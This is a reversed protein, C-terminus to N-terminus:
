GEAKFNPFILHVKLRHCYARRCNQHVDLILAIQMGKTIHPKGMVHKVLNSGREGYGNSGITTEDGCQDLGAQTTIANINEIISKFTYDYKYALCYGPQGKKPAKYNNCLKFLNSSRCTSTILWQAPFKQVILEEPSGDITFLEIRFPVM